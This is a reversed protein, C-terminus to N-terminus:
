VSQALVIRWRFFERAIPRAHGPICRRRRRDPQRHSPQVCLCVLRSRKHHAYQQGYYGDSSKIHQHRLRGPDPGGFNEQHVRNIAKLKCPQYRRSQRSAISDLMATLLFYAPNTHEIHIMNNHNRDHQRHLSPLKKTLFESLIGTKRSAYSEVRVEAGVPTNDKRDAALCAQDGFGAGVVSFHRKRSFGSM